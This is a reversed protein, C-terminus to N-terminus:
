AASPAGTTIKKKALKSTREASIARSVARESVHLGQAVCLQVLEPLTHGKDRARSLTPALAALADASTLPRVPVPAANITREIRELDDRTYFASSGRPTANAHMSTMTHSNM